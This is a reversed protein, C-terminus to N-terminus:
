IKRVQIPITLHKTILVLKSSKLCKEAFPCSDKKKVVLVLSRWRLNLNIRLVYGSYLPKLHYLVPGQQIDTECTVRKYDQMRRSKEIVCYAYNM